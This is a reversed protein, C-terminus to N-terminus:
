GESSREIKVKPNKSKVIGEALSRSRAMVRTSARLGDLDFTVTYQRERGPVGLKETLEDYASCYGSRTALRAADEWLWQIRPDDAAIYDGSPMEGIKRPKPARPDISELDEILVWDSAVTDSLDDEDGVEELNTVWPGRILAKLKGLRTITYERGPVPKWYGGVSAADVAVTVVDGVAINTIMTSVTGRRFPCTLRFPCFRRSIPRATHGNQGYGPPIFVVVVLLPLMRAMQWNQLRCLAGVRLWRRSMALPHDM